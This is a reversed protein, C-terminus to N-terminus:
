AQSMKKKIRATHRDLTNQRQDSAGRDPV